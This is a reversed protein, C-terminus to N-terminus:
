AEILMTKLVDVGVRCAWDGFCEKRYHEKQWLRILDVLVQAVRENEVNDLLMENLRTGTRSGGVFILYAHSNKAIIGIEAMRPRSCSNSCGSMRIIIDVAEGVAKEIKGMIQPMFRESENLAMPCSPLAPCAMEWQRLNSGGNSADIGYRQLLTNLVDVDADPINALVLNHHPTFRVEPSFRLVAEQLASKYKPGLDYDRIRGNELWLGVYNLGPQIQRSWGLYHEQGRM